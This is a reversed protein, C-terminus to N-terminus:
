WQMVYSISANIGDLPLGNPDSWVSPIVNNRNFLNRVDFMIKSDSKLKREYHFNTTWYDGIKNSTSIENAHMDFYAQNSIFYSSKSNNPEYGVDFILNYKPFASYDVGTRKDKSDVFSAATRFVFEDTYYKTDIEIGNSKSDGTNSYKGEYGPPPNSTDRVIGDRWHNYFYTVNVRYDDKVSMYVLEVTDLMEPKLDPDGLYAASSTLESALPARFAHGYLLKYATTYDAKYVLALRPSFHEGFSTYHDIRGGLTIALKDELYMRRVQGFVSGINRDMDDFLQKGTIVTAENIHQRDISVGTLWQNNKERNDNKLIASLGYRRDHARQFPVNIIRYIIKNDTQWFYTKVDLSLHNDLKLESNAKFMYFDNDIGSLNEPGFYPPDSPNKVERISPGIFDDTRSQNYYVGFETNNNESFRHQVKAVGTLSEYEDKREGFTGPNNGDEFRIGADGKTTAALMSYVHTDDNIRNSQRIHTQGFNPSGMRIKAETGEDCPCYTKLSYVGHFADSGYLASGPGRILEIQELTGLDFNQLTYQATGYSFTNVPVGDLLTAMGRVSLTGSFGRVAIASSGGFTAHHMVGPQYSVVEDTRRASRNIWDQEEFVTVTSPSDLQEEPFMSAINVEMLRELPMDLLYELNLKEDASASFSCVALIMWTQQIYSM